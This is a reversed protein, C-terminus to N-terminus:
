DVNWITNSYVNNDVGWDPYVWILEPEIELYPAPTQQYVLVDGLYATDIEDKGLFAKTARISGLFLEDNAEGEDDRILYITKPDKPQIAYYEALTECLRYELLNPPLQPICCEDGQPPFVVGEPYTLPGDMM